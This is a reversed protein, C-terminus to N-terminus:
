GQDKLPILATLVYEKYPKIVHNIRLLISIGFLSISMDLFRFLPRNTYRSSRTESYNLKLRGKIVSVPDGKRPYAVIAAY